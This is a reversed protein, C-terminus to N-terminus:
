RLTQATAIGHEFPLFERLWDLAGTAVEEIGDWDDAGCVVGVLTSLLIEDLPYTVMGPVRHDQVIRMHDLVGTTM